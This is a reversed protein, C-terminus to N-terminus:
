KRRKKKEQSAEVDDDSIEEESSTVGMGGDDDRRRSTTFKLIQERTLNSEKVMRMLASKLEDDNLEEEEENEEEEKENEEEQKKDSKNDDKETTKSHKVVENTTNKVENTTNKVENTTSTSVTSNFDLWKFYGCRLSKDKQLDMPCSFYRRGYNKGRKMVKRVVCRKLHKECTPIEISDVGEDLVSRKRQSEVISNREQRQAM